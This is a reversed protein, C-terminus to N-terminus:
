APFFVLSYSTLTSITNPALKLVNPKHKSSLVYYNFKGTLLSHGLLGHGSPLFPGEGKKREELKKKITTFYM